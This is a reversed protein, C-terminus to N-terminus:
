ELNQVQERMKELELKIDVVSLSISGDSCKSGITNVERGMEQLLFNLRKGVEGGQELAHAFGDIHSELRVLEETIDAREAFLAAEQVIREEPLPADRLLEALKEKLSEFNDMVMGPAAKSVEGL